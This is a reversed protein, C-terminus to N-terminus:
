VRKIDFTVSSEYVDAIAIRIYYLGGQEGAVYIQTLQDADDFSGLPINIGMQQIKVEVDSVIWFYDNVPQATVSTEITNSQNTLATHDFGMAVEDSNGWFFAATFISDDRTPKDAFRDWNADMEIQLGGAFRQLHSRKLGETANEKWEPYQAEYTCLFSLMRDSFSKAKYEEGKVLANIESRSLPEADTPLHKFMGGNAIQYAGVQYYAALAWHLLVDYVYDEILKQYAFPLNNQLLKRYLPTGITPELRLKQAEIIYPILKEAKVNLDMISSAALFEPSIILDARYGEIYSTFEARNM